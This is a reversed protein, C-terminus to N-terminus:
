TLDNIDLKWNRQFRHDSLVVTVLNSSQLFNPRNKLSQAIKLTVSTRLNKTKRNLPYSTM